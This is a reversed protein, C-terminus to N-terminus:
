AEGPFLALIFVLPWALGSFFAHRVSRGVIAGNLGLCVAGGLYFAVLESM